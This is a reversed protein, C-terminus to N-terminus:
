FAEPWGGHQEKWELRAAHVEGIRANSFADAFTSGDSTKGKESQWFAFFM